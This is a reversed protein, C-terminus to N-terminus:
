PNIVATFNLSTTAVIEMLTFNSYDTHTCIPRGGFVCACVCGVLKSQSSYRGQSRRLLSFVHMCLRWKTKVQPNVNPDTSRIHLM